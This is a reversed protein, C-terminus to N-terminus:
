WFMEQHVVIGFHAPPSEDTGAIVVMGAPRDFRGAVYWNRWRLWRAADAIIAAPEM